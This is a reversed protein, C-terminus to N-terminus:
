ALLVPEFGTPSVLTQSPTVGQLIRGVTSRGVFTCTGAALDPTFHLKEALLTRLLQRALPINGGISALVKNWDAIKAKLDRELGKLDLRELQRSALRAEVQQRLQARRHEREQLASVLSPLDGGAAIATSLRALEDEVARLQAQLDAEQPAFDSREREQRAKEIAKEVSYLLVEPHFLDRKLSDWVARHTAEMPLLLDNACRSQGRRHNTGCTYFQPRHRGHARSRPTLSGGVAGDTKPTCLTCDALGTLLYKSEIGNLPRGM